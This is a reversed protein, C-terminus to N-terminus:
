FGINDLERDCYDFSRLNDVWLFPNIKAGPKLAYDSPGNKTEHCHPITFSCTQEGWPLLSLFLSPGSLWDFAVRGGLSRVGEVLARINGHVPFWAKTVYAKPFCGLSLSYSLLLGVFTLWAKCAPHRLLTEGVPKLHSGRVVHPDTTKRWAWTTASSLLSYDRVPSHFSLDPHLSIALSSLDGHCSSLCGPASPGLEGAKKFMNGSIHYSLHWSWLGVSM